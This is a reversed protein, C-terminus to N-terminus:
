TTSPGKLAAGYHEGCLRKYGDPTPTGCTAEEHCGDRQCEADPIPHPDDWGIACFGSELASLGGTTLALRGNKKTRYAFQCLLDEIVEAPDDEYLEGPSM